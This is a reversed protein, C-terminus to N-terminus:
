EDNNEIGKIRIDDIPVVVPFKTKDVFNITWSTTAMNTFDNPLMSQIEGKGKTYSSKNLRRIVKNYDENSRMYDAGKPVAFGTFWGVKFFNDKVYSELYEITQNNTLGVESITKVIAKRTTQGIPSKSISLANAFISNGAEEQKASMEHPKILWQKYKEAGEGPNGKMLIRAVRLNAKIDKPLIYHNAELVTAQEGVTKLVDATVKETDLIQNLGADISKVGMIYINKFRDNTKITTDGNGIAQILDYEGRYVKYGAYVSTPIKEGAYGLGIATMLKSPADKWEGRTRGELIETAMNQYQVKSEESLKLQEKLQEKYMKDKLESIRRRGNVGTIVGKKMYEEVMTIKTGYALGKTAITDDLVQITDKQIQADITKTKAILTEVKKTNKADIASYLEDKEKKSLYPNTKVDSKKDVDSRGVDRIGAEFDKDYDKRLAKDIAKNKTFNDDKTKKHIARVNVQELKLKEETIKGENFLKQWNFLQKDEQEWVNKGADTAAKIDSATANKNVTNIQGKIVEVDTGTALELNKNLADLKDQTPIAATVINKSNQVLTKRTQNAKTSKWEQFHGEQRDKGWGTGISKSLERAQAETLDLNKLAQTTLFSIDEKKKYEKKALVEAKEANGKGKELWGKDMGKEIAKVKIDEMGPNPNALLVALNAHLLGRKTNIVTNFDDEGTAIYQKGESFVDSHLIDMYQTKLTGLQEWSTNHIDISNLYTEKLSKAFFGAGVGKNQRYAPASAVLRKFIDVQDKIPLNKSAVVINAIDSQYHNSEEKDLTTSWSKSALDLASKRVKQMKIQDNAELGETAVIGDLSVGLNDFLEKKGKSGFTMADNKRYEDMVDYYQKSAGAYASLDKKTQQKAEYEGYTKVANYTTTIANNIEKATQSVVQPRQDLSRLSFKKTSTGFM